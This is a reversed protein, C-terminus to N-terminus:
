ILAKSAAEITQRLDEDTHAMSVFLAEFPSPPFYIGAELCKYFFRAFASSDSGSATAWNTVAKNTVAKSTFFPTMISGVRNLQLPVKAKKAASALGSALKQSKSELEKYVNPKQLLQLTAIGAATAVPNGSLTGAQYVPGLPSILSMIDKRGGYAGVPLGGGIIKGLCTLDPKIKYIEQAGGYAVRFGTIIEDFILIAGYKSTIKRLGDLFGPDPPVVGMNAAVPEVIVCAIEKPYTLFLAEVSPIDNYNAVLTDQGHAPNVGASSPVGHAAAGSGAKVLLADSHGHYGGEFKIIKPRGTFARAVRLASMTAETGSNVLRVLEISPYAAVIMQALDTERETPAGFSTGDKLAKQIAETVQPHSHGLILPGWSCVYDIFKNGDADWLYPGSGKTFFIPEGKVGGWSRAPSNVGGPIVKRANSYLQRYKDLKM